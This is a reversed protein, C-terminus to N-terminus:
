DLFHKVLSKMKADSTAQLEQLYTKAAPTQTAALALILYYTNTESSAKIAAQLVPVVAEGLRGVFHAAVELVDYSLLNHLAFAQALALVYGYDGNRTGQNTAILQQLAELMATTVTPQPHKALTAMTEIMIQLQPVNLLQLLYPIESAISEFHRLARVFTIKTVVANDSQAMERMKPLADHSQLKGLALMAALRVTKQEDELRKLLEPSAQVDGIEGLSFCASVRVLESKHELSKVLQKVPKLEILRRTAFHRIYLSDVMLSQLLYAIDESKLLQQIHNQDQHM